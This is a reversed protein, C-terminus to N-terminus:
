LQRRRDKEYLEYSMYRRLTVRRWDEGLQAGWDREAGTNLRGRYRTGSGDLPCVLLLTGTQYINYANDTGGEGVTTYEPTAILLADGATNLVAAEANRLYVSEGVPLNQHLAFSGNEVRLATLYGSYDDGYIHLVADRDTGRPRAVASFDAQGAFEALEVHDVRVGAANVLDACAKGVKNLYVCLTLGDAMPLGCAVLRADEPCYFPELTGVETTACLVERDGVKGDTPLAALDDYSIPTAKYLGAKRDAVTYRWALGQGDGLLFVQGAIYSYDIDTDEVEDSFDATYDYSASTRNLYTPVEANASVSIPADLVVDRLAIRLIGGGIYIQAMVRFDSATSQMQYTDQYAHVRQAEVNVADRSKPAVAYLTDISAGWASYHYQDDSEDPDLAFSTDLYGDHLDWYTHACDFYSQGRMTFGRLAAPDGALDTLTVDLAGRWGLLVWLAGAALLAAALVIATVFNRLSTSKKTKM